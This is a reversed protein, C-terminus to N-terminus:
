LEVSECLLVWDSGDWFEVCGSTTNFIMLGVALDTQEDQLVKTLEYRAEGCMQPLRLGQTGGGVLELVSFSHPAEGSGITVQAGAISSVFIMSSLLLSSLYNRIKM